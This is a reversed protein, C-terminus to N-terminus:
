SELWDSSLTSLTEMIWELVVTDGTKIDMALCLRGAKNRKEKLLGFISIGNCTQGFLSVVGPHREVIICSIQSAINEIAIAVSMSTPPLLTSTGVASFPSAPNQLTEMFKQPTMTAVHLHNPLLVNIAFPLRFNVHYSENNFKITAQVEGFFWSTVSDRELKIHLVAHDGCNEAEVNPLDVVVEFKSRPASPTNVTLFFELDLQVREFIDMPHEKLTLEVFFQDNQWVTYKGFNLTDLMSERRKEKHKKKKKDKKEKKESKEKKKKPEVLVPSHDVTPAGTSQVDDQNLKLAYKKVVPRYLVSSFRDISKDAIVPEDLSPREMTEQGRELKSSKAPSNGDLYFNTLDLQEIATKPPADYISHKEIFDFGNLELPELWDNLNLNADIPVKQQASESVPDLEL